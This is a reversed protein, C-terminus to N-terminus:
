ARACIKNCKGETGSPCYSCTHVTHGDDKTVIWFSRNWDLWVSVKGNCALKYNFVAASPTFHALSTPLLVVATRHIASGYILSRTMVDTFIVTSNFATWLVYLEWLLASPELRRNKLDLYEGVNRLIRINKVTRILCKSQKVTFAFVSREKSIGTVLNWDICHLMGFKVTRRSIDRYLWFSCRFPFVQPQRWFLM